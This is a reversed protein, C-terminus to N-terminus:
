EPPTAPVFISEHVVQREVPAAPVFCMQTWDYRVHLLRTALDTYPSLRVIGAVPDNVPVPDDPVTEVGILVNNEDLRAIKAM